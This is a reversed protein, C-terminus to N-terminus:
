KEEKSKKAKLKELEATVKVYEDYSVTKGKGHSIVNGDDDTIDFGRRLYAQKEQESITYVKNGKVAKM